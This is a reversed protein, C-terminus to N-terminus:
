FQTWHDNLWGMGLIVDYKLSLDDVVQAVLSSSHGAISLNLDVEGRVAMESSVTSLKTNSDRINKGLEIAVQKAIINVQSGNDILIRM